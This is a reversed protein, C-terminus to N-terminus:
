RRKSGVSWPRWNPAADVAQLFQELEEKLYTRM